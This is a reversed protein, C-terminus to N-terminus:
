LFFYFLNVTRTNSCIKELSDNICCCPALLLLLAGNCVDNSVSEGLKGSCLSDRSFRGLLLFRCCTRFAQRLQLIACLPVCRSNAAIVLTCCSNITILVCTFQSNITILVCAGCVCSNITILQIKATIVQMCLTHLCLARCASCGTRGQPLNCQCQACFNLASSAVAARLPVGDQM